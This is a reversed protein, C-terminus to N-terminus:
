PPMYSHHHDDHPPWHVGERPCPPPLPAPQALYTPYRQGPMLVSLDAAQLMSEVMPPGRLKGPSLVHRRRAPHLAAAALSGDPPFIRPKILHEFIAMLLFMSVLIATAAFGFSIADMSTGFDRLTSAAEGSADAAVPPQPPAPTPEGPPWARSRQGFGSM